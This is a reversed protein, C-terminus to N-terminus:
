YHICFSHVTEIYIYLLDALASLFYKHEYRGRAFLLQCLSMFKVDDWKRCWTTEIYWFDYFKTSANM